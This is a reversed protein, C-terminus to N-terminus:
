RSYAIALASAARDLFGKAAEALAVIAFRGPLEGTQEPGCDTAHRYAADLKSAEGEFRALKAALGEIETVMERWREIQAAGRVASLQLRLTQERKRGLDLAIKIAARQAVIADIGPTASAPDYRVHGNLLRQADASPSPHEANSIPPPHRGLLAELSTVPVAGAAELALQERLLEGDRRDLDGILASLNQLAEIDGPRNEDKPKARRSSLMVGENREM